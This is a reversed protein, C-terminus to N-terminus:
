IPGITPQNQNEFPEGVNRSVMPEVSRMSPTDWSAEARM